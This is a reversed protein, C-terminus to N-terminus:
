QGLNLLSPPFGSYNVAGGTIGEALGRFLSLSGLTVILPPLQFRSILSANLLGAGSGAALSVLLAAGIPWNWDRSAAGFLVASFGMVAGVSLDIGGTVLIPTM